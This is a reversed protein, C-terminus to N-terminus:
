AAKKEQKTKGGVATKIVVEVKEKLAAAVKEQLEKSPTLAVMYGGAGGGTLKAGYAGNEKAVQILEELKEHSVGIKRLLEQNKDMLEGVKKWNGDKLAPLAQEFIKSYEEFTKKYTEPDKELLKKVNAVVAKTNVPIGTNGMVIEVTHDLELKEMINGDDHKEFLILTGYTACTNDIGSPTGHYGKEGEFAVENIREDSMGLSFFQDIARAIAACAAASAGIGSAAMLDGALTIKVGQVDWAVQPIAKKIYEISEKLQESKGEKYGPIAHRKDVIDIGPVPSKEIEATTKQDIGAAIAPLGYVVFHEGFLIVKGFGHGAM